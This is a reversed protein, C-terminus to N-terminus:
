SDLRQARPGAEVGVRREHAEDVHEEGEGEEEEDHGDAGREIAGGDGRDEGREPERAPEAGRADKARLCELHSVEIEHERRAREIRKLPIAHLSGSAGGIGAAWGSSGVGRRPPVSRMAENPSGREKSGATAASPSARGTM